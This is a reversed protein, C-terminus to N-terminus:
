PSAPFAEDDNDLLEIAGWILLGIVIAGLIWKASGRIESPASLDAGARVAPANALSLSAASQAVAAGSSVLLAAAGMIGLLKSIM